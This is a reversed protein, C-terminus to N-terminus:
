AMEKLKALSKELETNTRRTILHGMPGRIGGGSVEAEYSVASGGHAAEVSIVNAVTAGMPGAGKLVVKTDTLVEVTWRVDAAMGMLKFKQTFQQGHELANPEGQPWSDHITLWEGFRTLNTALAFAEAPAKDLGVTKGVSPM